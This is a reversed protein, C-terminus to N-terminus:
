ATRNKELYKQIDEKNFRLSRGVHYATLKGEKVLDYIVYRGKKLMECVDSVTYLEEKM